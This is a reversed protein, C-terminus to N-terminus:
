SHAAEQHESPLRLSTKPLSSFSARTIMDQKRGHVDDTQPLVPLDRNQVASELHM